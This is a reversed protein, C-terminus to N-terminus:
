VYKLIDTISTVASEVIYKRYPGVPCGAYIGTTKGERFSRVLPKEWDPYPVPENPDYSSFAKFKKIAHLFMLDTNEAIFDTPVELAYDFGENIAKRYASCTSFKNNGPDWYEDAYEDDSWVLEWPSGRKEMLNRMERELPVRYETGRKDQTEKKFPHGHKSLILLVRAHLPVHALQDQIIRVYAERMAPQNGLQDACIFKARKKVFSFVRPLAYAYEEFDSYVPNCFCQYIITKCGKDLLYEVAQSLSEEYIYQAHCFEAQPFQKKLATVTEIYISKCQYEWAVKKEPLLHGYYWGVVKAGTKQCVDPAGGKGDGTYLFYGHDSPNKKMGPPRWKVECEVYPRGDRNNFSGNMDVLHLPVFPERALPNLPDILAIGRDALVYPQLFVPLSYLFVHDMFNIYFEPKYVEPMGLESLIIGPKGEPRRDQGRFFKEYGYQNGYRWHRIWEFM